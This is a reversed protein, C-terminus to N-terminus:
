HAIRSLGENELEELRDLLEAERAEFDPEAIEGQELATYLQRLQSMIEDSQGRIEEEAAKCIENFLWLSGKLPFMLVDDVLFM